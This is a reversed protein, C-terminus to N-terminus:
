TYLSGVSTVYSSRWATMLFPAASLKVCLLFVSSTASSITDSPIKVLSDVSRCTNWPKGWNTFSIWQVERIVTHNSASLESSYIIGLM